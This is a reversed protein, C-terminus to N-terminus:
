YEYSSRDPKPMVHHRFFITVGERSMDTIVPVENGNEDLYYYKDNIFDIFENTPKAYGYDRLFSGYKDHYDAIKVNQELKIKREHPKREFLEHYLGFKSSYYWFDNDLTNYVTSSSKKYQPTETFVPTEIKTFAATKFKPILKVENKFEKEFQNVVRTHRFLFSKEHSIDPIPDSGDSYVWHNNAYEMLCGPNELKEVLERYFHTGEKTLFWNREITQRDKREIERDMIEFHKNKKILYKISHEFHKKKM